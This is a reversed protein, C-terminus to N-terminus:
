RAFMCVFVHFISHWLPVVVVLVLRMHLFIVVKGFRVPGRMLLMVVLGMLIVCCVVVVTHRVIRMIPMILMLTMSGVYIVAPM